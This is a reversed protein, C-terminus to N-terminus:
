VPCEIVGEPTPVTYLLEVLAARRKLVASQNLSGKDTIEGGDLSPAERMVMARAIRNSSGTSERAFECLLSEFAARTRGSAELRAWEDPDAFILATVEDRDHGAL